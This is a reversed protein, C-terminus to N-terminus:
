TAPPFYIKMWSANKKNAEQVIPFINGEMLFM